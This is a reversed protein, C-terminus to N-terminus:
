TTQRVVRNLKQLADLNTTLSPNELEFWKVFGHKSKMGIREYQVDERCAGSNDEYCWRLHSFRM